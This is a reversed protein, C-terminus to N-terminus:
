KKATKNQLMAFNYKKNLAMLYIVTKVSLLVLYGKPFM